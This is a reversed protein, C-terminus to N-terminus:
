RAGGRRKARSARKPQSRRQSAAQAPARDGPCDPGPCACAPWVVCGVPRRPDAATVEVAQGWEDWQWRRVRLVYSVGTLPHTTMYVETFGGQSDPMMVPVYRTAIAMIMPRKAVTRGVQALEHQSETGIMAISPDGHHDRRRYHEQSIYPCLGGLALEGCREHVPPEIYFGEPALSVV